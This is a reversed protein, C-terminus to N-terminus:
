ESLLIIREARENESIEDWSESFFCDFSGPNHELELRVWQEFTLGSDAQRYNEGIIQRVYNIDM